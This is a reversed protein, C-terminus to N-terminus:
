ILNNIITRKDKWFIFSQGYYIVLAQHKNCITCKRESPIPNIWKHFGLWCKFKEKMVRKNLGM